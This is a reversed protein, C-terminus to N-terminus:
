AAAMRMKGFSTTSVDAFSPGAVSESIWIVFVEFETIPARHKKILVVDYQLLEGTSAGIAQVASPTAFWM